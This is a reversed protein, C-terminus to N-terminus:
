QFHNGEFLFDDLNNHTVQGDDDDDDSGGGGGGGRGDSM